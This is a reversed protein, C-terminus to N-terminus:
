KGGLPLRPRVLLDRRHRPRVRLYGRWFTMTFALWGGAALLGLVCLPSLIAAAPTIDFLPRPSNAGTPPPTTSPDGPNWQAAAHYDSVVDRDAFPVRPLYLCLLCGTLGVMITSSGFLHFWRRRRWCRQRRLRRSACRERWSVHKKFRERFLTVAILVVLATLPLSAALATVVLGWQGAFRDPWRGPDLVDGGFLVLSAGAIGLLISLLAHYWPPKQNRLISLSCLVSASLGAVLAALLLGSQITLLPAVM